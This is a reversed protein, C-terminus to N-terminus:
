LERGLRADISWAGGGRVLFHLVVAAWFLPYEFGRIDWYFGFQWHYTVATVLFILIPIAVARTLLGLALCLGGAFETIGVAVAWFLGPSFGAREFFGAVAETNGFLKPWGHAALSLGAIVRILPETIPALGRYITGLAPILLRPQDPTQDTM